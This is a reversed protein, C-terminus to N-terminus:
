YRNRKSCDPFTEFGASGILLMERGGDVRADIVDLEQLAIEARQVAPQKEIGTATFAAEGTDKELAVGRGADDGEVESEGHQACRGFCAQRKAGSEGAKGKGAISEIENVGGFTEFVSHVNFGGDGFEATNEFWAAFEDDDVFVGLVPPTKLGGGPLAPKVPLLQQLEQAAM